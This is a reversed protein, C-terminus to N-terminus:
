HATLEKLYSSVCLPEIIADLQGGARNAAYEGRQSGALLVATRIKSPESILLHQWEATM